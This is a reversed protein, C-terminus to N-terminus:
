YTQKEAEWAGHQRSRTSTKGPNGAQRRGKAFYFNPFARTKLQTSGFAVKHMHKKLSPTKKLRFKGTAVKINIVMVYSFHMAWVCQDFLQSQICAHMRVVRRRGSFIADKQHDSWATSLLDRVVTELSHQCVSELCLPLCHSGRFNYILNGSGADLAPAPAFEVLSCRDTILVGEKARGKRTEGPPQQGERLLCKVTHLSVKSPM